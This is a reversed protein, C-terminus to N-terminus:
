ERTFLFGFRFRFGELPIQEADHGRVIRRILPLRQDDVQSVDVILGFGIGTM